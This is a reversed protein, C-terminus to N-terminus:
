AADDLTGYLRVRALQDAVESTPLKQSSSQAFIASLTVFIDDIKQSIQQNEANRHQLSAYILGGANIVYDPAYLIGKEHLTYGLEKHSLQVNASGAVIMCGLEGVTKHNIAGSLGCPAFVSCPTKHIQEPHVSESAFVNMARNVAQMNIDAVIIRAKAQKLLRGLEFGVAGVGQIAVRLGELDDRGFKHKVAAKIGNFVGLATFQSPNGANSTSTVHRTQSHIIDMESATTGADIATIYRGHLSDVFRGFEKFLLEKNFRGKPKMIVAKGGGQPLNALAAKYSMGQALKVADLLAHDESEYEIFRCGGLAPGFHTNHIAIFAKLGSAADNRVHLANIQHLDLLDFM